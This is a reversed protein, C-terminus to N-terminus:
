KIIAKGSKTAETSKPKAIDPGTTFDKGQQLVCDEEVHADQLVYPLAMVNVNYINSVGLIVVAVCGIQWKRSVGVKIAGAILELWM